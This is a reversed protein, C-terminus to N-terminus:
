SHREELAADFRLMLALVSSLVLTGIMFWVSLVWGFSEYFRGVVISGILGGFYYSSLYLGSAAAREQTAARGVFGTIVAQAFFLGMALLALGILVVILEGSILAYLGIVAIITSMWYTERVGIKSAVKGAIPTTFVSPLFVFYVLGLTATDLQYPADYLVYNVYTYAGIFIFMIIFGIIFSTVLRPNCLHQYWVGCVRAAEEACFLDPRDDLKTEAQVAKDSRGIYAMALIAGALNLAALLYFISNAGFAEAVNASIFRGALNSLVNGTIYAAMAGVAKSPSCNEAIYAMTLTFAVAMLIGQLVRLGIFANINTVYALSLTPIVLLLLCLWIGMRKDLAKATLAVAFGAIAMGITSANIAFGMTSKSVNYAATLAPAIAQPGFLDVLSLFSILGIIVSDKIPFSGGDPKIAKESAM